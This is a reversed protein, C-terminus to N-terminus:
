RLWLIAGVFFLFSAFNRVSKDFRSFVRRFFKLKSFFCEVLHREKYIHTDYEVPIKRNSKGPIVPTCKQNRIKARINDSDYGKDGIVYAGTTEGILEEAKIFDSTQGSTVILKLPNGLADVKAHIKTTFGGKSRGLGENEQIGYGASCAHARVITADIMVYELDSDKSFFTFLKELIGKKSWANFRKFISNWRGYDRPLERWQAGTRVMWYVAEIFKKVKKECRVYIEKITKLFDFIKAWAENKIYEKEMTASMLQTTACVKKRPAIM